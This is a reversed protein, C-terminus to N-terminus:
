EETINDNHWRTRVLFKPNFIDASNNINKLEWYPIRYLKINNALCYSNKRRDHERAKLFDQRNRFFKSVYHFHQEGDIELLINLQPLYYDFRFRGNKLDQYTKEREFMIRERLLIRLIHAEYNSM